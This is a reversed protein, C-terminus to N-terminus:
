AFLEFSATNTKGLTKNEAGYIIWNVHAALWAESYDFGIIQLKLAL